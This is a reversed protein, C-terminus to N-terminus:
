NRRAAVETLALCIALLLFCVILIPSMWKIIDFVSFVTIITMALNIFFAVLGGQICYIQFGQPSFYGDSDMRGHKIWEQYTRRKSKRIRQKRGWNPHTSALWCLVIVGIGLAHNIYIQSRGMSDNSSVIIEDPLHPVMIIALVLGGVAIAAALALLIYFLTKDTEM